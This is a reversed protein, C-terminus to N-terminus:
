IKGFKIKGRVAWFVFYLFIFLILSYFNGINKAVQFGVLLVFINIFNIMILTKLHNNKFKILILHHLHNNDPQYFNKKNMIRKFTVYLFDYVPYWCSWILYSPHINEYINAYIILFSLFFGLFLSGCDGLFIKYNNSSPLVNFLLNIILPILFLYLLSIVNKNDILFIIYLIMVISLSSLLGDIGDTYNYANILLGVSLLTFFISLKGLGLSGIIEYDGLSKLEFGNFILFFVPFFICIIKISASLSIRDDLFGFFVIFIGYSIILELEYSYEYISIIILLFIYLSLGSTNIVKIKHVKRDNPFDYFSFKRSLIITFFILVFYISTLYVYIM